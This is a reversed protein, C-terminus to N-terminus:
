HCRLFRSQPRLALGSAGAGSRTFDGRFMPVPWAAHHAQLWLDPEDLTRALQFLENTVEDAM